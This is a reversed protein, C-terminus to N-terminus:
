NPMRQVYKSSYGWHTSWGKTKSWSSLICSFNYRWCILELTDKIWKVCDSNPISLDGCEELLSNLYTVIESQSCSGPMKSNLSTDQLLADIEEPQFVLTEDSSSDSTIINLIKARLGLFNFVPILLM